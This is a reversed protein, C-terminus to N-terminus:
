QFSHPSIFRSIRLASPFFLDSTCVPSGIFFATAINTGINANM